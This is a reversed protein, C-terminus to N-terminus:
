GVVVREEDVDGLDAGAVEHPPQEAAVLRQRHVPASAVPEAVAGTDLLEREVLGAQEAYQPRGSSAEGNSSGIGRVASRRARARRAMASTGASTAVPRHAVAHRSQPGDGEGFLRSSGSWIAMGPGSTCMPLWIWARVSHPRKFSAAASAVAAYSAVGDVAGGSARM